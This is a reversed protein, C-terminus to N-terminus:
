CHSYDFEPLQDHMLKGFVWDLMEPITGIVYSDGTEHSLYGADGQSNYIMADGGPSTAFVTSSEAPFRANTSSCGYVPLPIHEHAPLIGGSYGIASWHVLDFDTYLAAFRSDVPASSAPAFLCGSMSPHSWQFASITARQRMYIDALILAWNGEDIFTSLYDRLNRLSTKAAIQGFHSKPDAFADRIAATVLDRHSDPVADLDDGTALILTTGRYDNPRILM